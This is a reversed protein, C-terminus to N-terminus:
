FVLLACMILYLLSVSLIWVEGGREEGSGRWGTTRWDVVSVRLGGLLVSVMNDLLSMESLDVDKGAAALLGFCRVPVCHFEVINAACGYLACRCGDM